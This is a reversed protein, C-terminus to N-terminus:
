KTHQGIKSYLIRRDIGTVAWFTYIRPCCALVFYLRAKSPKFALYFILLLSLVKCLFSNLRYLSSVCFLWLSVATVYKYAQAQPIAFPIAIAQGSVPVYLNIAFDMMRTHFLISFAVPRHYVM